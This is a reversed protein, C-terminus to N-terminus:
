AGVSRLRNEDGRPLRCGVWAAILLPLFTRMVFFPIWAPSRNTVGLQYAFSEAVIDGLPLLLLCLLFARLMSVWSFARNVLLFIALIPLVALTPLVIRPSFEYVFQSWPWPLGVGWAFVRKFAGSRYLPAWPYWWFLATGVMAFCIQWRHANLERSFGVLMAILVQRWFWGGSQGEHFRELLDGALAEQDKKSCLHRLMWAALAPPQARERNM